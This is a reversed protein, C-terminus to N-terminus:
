DKFKPHTAVGEVKSQLVQWWTHLRRGPSKRSFDSLRIRSRTRFKEFSLDAIPISFRMLNYTFVYDENEKITVDMDFGRKAVLFRCALLTGENDSEFAAIHAALPYQESIKEVLEATCDAGVAIFVSAPSVPRIEWYCYASFASSFWYIYRIENDPLNSVNLSWYCGPEYCTMDPTDFLHYQQELVNSFCRREWWVIQNQKNKYPFMLMSKEQSTGQLEWDLSWCRPFASVLKTFGHRRAYISFRHNLEEDIGNPNDKKYNELTM